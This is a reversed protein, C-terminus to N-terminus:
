GSLSRVSVWYSPFAYPDKGNGYGLLTRDNTSDYVVADSVFTYPNFLTAFSEFESISTGSTRLKWFKVSYQSYYEALINAKSVPDYFCGYSASNNQQNPQSPNTANFYYDSGYSLSGNSNPTIPKFIDGNNGDRGTVVLTGEEPNFMIAPDHTQTGITKYNNNTVNGTWTGDTGGSYRLSSITNWYNGSGSSYRQCVMFLDSTDDKFVSNMLYYGQHTVNLSRRTGFSFSSGSVTFPRAQVTYSDGYIAFYVNNTPDYRCAPGYGYPPRYNNANEIGSSVTYSMSNGSYTVRCAKIQDGSGDDVVVGIAAGSASDWHWGANKCDSWSRNYVLQQESGISVSSGSVTVVAGRYYDNRWWFMLFKSSDNTEIISVRNASNGLNGQEALLSSLDPDPFGSVLGGGFGRASAAGFTSLLPM